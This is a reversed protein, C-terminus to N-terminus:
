GAQPSPVAVPPALGAKLADVAARANKKLHAEEGKEDVGVFAYGLKEAMRQVAEDERITEGQARQKGWWETSTTRLSPDRMVAGRMYKLSTLRTVAAQLNSQVQLLATNPDAALPPSPRTAHVILPLVLFLLQRCIWLNDHLMFVNLGDKPIRVHQVATTYGEMIAACVVAVVAYTRWRERHSGRITILGIVATERIYELLPGPLAYLAFEDYSTCYECDQLVSQGFRVYFTRFDFSPMRSILSELPKPLTADSDLGAKHLLLARISDSPMTVPIKLRQFLNPPWQM